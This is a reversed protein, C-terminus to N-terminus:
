GPHPQDTNALVPNRGANRAKQAPRRGSGADKARSQVPRSTRPRIRRGLAAYGVPLGMWSLPRHRLMGCQSLHAKLDLPWSLVSAKRCARWSRRPQKHGAEMHPIDALVYRLAAGSRLDRVPVRPRTRREISLVVVTEGIAKITRKPFGRRERLGYTAMAATTSSPPQSMRSSRMLWVAIVAETSSVVSKRM